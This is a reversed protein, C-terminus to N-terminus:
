TSASRLMYKGRTHCCHCLPWIRWICNRICQSNNDRQFEPNKTKNRAFKCDVRCISCYTFINYSFCKYPTIMWHNQNFSTIPTFNCINYIIVHSTPVTCFKYAAIEMLTSFVTRLFSRTFIRMATELLSCM